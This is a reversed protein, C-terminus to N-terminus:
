ITEILKKFNDNGHIHNYYNGIKFYYDYTEEVIKDIFNKTEVEESYTAYTFKEALERKLREIAYGLGEWDFGRKRRKANKAFKTILNKTSNKIQSYSIKM